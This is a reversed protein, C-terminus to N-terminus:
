PCPQGPRDALAELTVAIGELRHRTARSASLEADADALEALIARLGRAAEALEARASSEPETV